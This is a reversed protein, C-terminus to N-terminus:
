RSGPLPNFMAAFGTLESYEWGLDFNQKKM